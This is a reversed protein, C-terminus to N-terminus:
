RRHGDTVDVVLAKYRRGAICCNSSKRRRYADFGEYRFKFREHGFVLSIQMSKKVFRPYSLSPLLVLVVVNKYQVVEVTLRSKDNGSDHACGQTLVFVRLNWLLTISM